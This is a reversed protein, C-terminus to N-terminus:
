AIKEFIKTDVELIGDKMKKDKGGSNEIWQLIREMTDFLDAYTYDIHTKAKKKGLYILALLILNIKYYSKM